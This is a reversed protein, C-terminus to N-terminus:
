SRRRSFLAFSGLVIGFVCMFSGWLLNVQIGLDRPAVDSPVFLGYGGLIVGLVVFMVAIPIRLDM